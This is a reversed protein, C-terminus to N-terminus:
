GCKPQSSDKPKGLTLTTLTPACCPDPEKTGKHYLEADAMTHYVEWPIGSPDQVWSKDSQSYCCTTKGSETVILGAQDIRSRLEELETEDEAQFGLHDLGPKTGRCSIAFNIRPDELMWKAYDPKRKTPPCGFLASYFGISHDLNEVAVHLHMRKM